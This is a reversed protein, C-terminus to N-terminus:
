RGSGRAEVQVVRGPDRVLMREPDPTWCGVVPDAVVVAAPVLSPEPTVTGFGTLAAVLLVSGFLLWRTVSPPRPPRWHPDWATNVAEVPDTTRPAWTEFFAPKAPCARHRPSVPRGRLRLVSPAAYLRLM